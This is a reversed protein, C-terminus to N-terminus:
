KKMQLITMVVTSYGSTLNGTNNRLRFARYGTYGPTLVWQITTPLYITQAYWTSTDGGTGVWSNFTYSAPTVTAVAAGGTLDYLQLTPQSAEGLVSLIFVLKAGAEVTVALDVYGAAMGATVESIAGNAIRAENIYTVGGAVRFPSAASGGSGVIEFNEAQIKFTSSGGGAYISYGAIAGGANVTLTKLAALGNISTQQSTISATNGNVTTQITSVQSATSAIRADDALAWTQGTWRYTRNSDGSHVVLVDPGNSWDSPASQGARCIGFFPLTMFVYPYVNTAPAYGRVYITCYTAGSPAQFLGWVRKYNGLGPAISSDGYYGDGEYVQSTGAETIYAFSSNYWAVNIYANCRHAGLYASLEYYNGATVPIFYGATFGFDFYLGGYGVPSLPIHSSWSVGGQLMYVSWALSAQAGGYGGSNWGAARGDMGARGDANMIRNFGFPLFDDVGPLSNRYLVRQQSAKRLVDIDSSTRATTETTISATATNATAQAAAANALATNATGQAAAANSVGTNATSQAASSAASVTTITSSLASDASARTSAESTIAAANTAIRQDDRLDWSLGNWVSMRYNDSTNLWIAGTNADVWPSPVTQDPEALGFFPKVLMIYPDASGNALGDVILYCQTAGAPATAIVFVREFNSLKNGSGGGQTTVTASSSAGLYTPTANFWVISATIGQLRHNALYVSFEYKQGATVAYRPAGDAGDNYIGVYTGSAPTGVLHVYVNRAGTPTWTDTTAFLGRDSSGAYNTTIKWYNFVGDVFSSQNLRNKGPPCVQDVTPSSGQKFVQQATGSGLNTIQSSFKADLTSRTTAEASDATVRAAAETTIAANAAAILANYSGPGRKGIAVWDVDFVDAATSGLDIRLRTITNTIYDTGGATLASMDWTVIASQGATLNPNAAAKYYGGNEGHGSTSHYCIGQWGSGAVRTIRAQIIFDTAGAVSIIPSYFIMQGNSTTLRLSSAQATLTTTAAYPTWGDATNNFNWTLAADLPNTDALQVQTTTLSATLSTIQSAMATDASARTSAESTINAEAATMRTGLTGTTGELSTLRGNATGQYTTFSSNLTTIATANTSDANARTSAESTIASEATTVRTTLAGLNSNTTGLNGNTTALAADNTTKYTNFSSTLTSISTANASDGNVRATQETTIAANAAAIQTNYTGPGRKGVAVWDVDFIDAASAGFDLRIATITHTTWDTGGATLASMDWTLIASQGATLNPNAIQKYSSYSPGYTGGNYFCSGEWGSGAVRTIRAQVLFDKSGDISITPSVIIPDATTAAVRLSAAQTTVTVNASTWGDATGNFNWTIAADLPNLDALTVQTTTLSASLSTISSSLASDATARTTEETQLRAFTAAVGSTANNVTSELTTARSALATDATARTTEETVLRSYTAALGTTANNVGSELTTTRNSLATDATARTTEETVLRSYTAAVGSTANNVTAELTTSRTALANDASARVTSETTISSEANGMRVTLATVNTNILGDGDVRAVSEAAVAAKVANTSDTLTRFTNAISNVGVVMNRLTTVVDQLKGALDTPLQMM